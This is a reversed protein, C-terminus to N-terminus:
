LLTCSPNDKSSTMGEPGISLATERVVEPIEYDEESSDEEQQSPKSTKEDTQNEEVPDSNKTTDESVESAIDERKPKEPLEYKEASRSSTVSQNAYPDENSVLTTGSKPPLPPPESSDEPIKSATEEQAADPTLKSATSISKSKTGNETEKEDTMMNIQSNEIIGSREEKIPDRTHVTIKLIEINEENLPSDKSTEQVPETVEQKVTIPSSPSSGSPTGPQSTNPTKPPSVHPTEPPSAKPTEPPSEPPSTPPPPPPCDPPLDSEDIFPVSRHGRLLLATQRLTTPSLPPAPPIGDKGPLEPIEYQSVPETKKVVKEVNMENADMYPIDDLASPTQQVPSKNRAHDELSLLSDEGEDDLKPPPPPPPITPHQIQLKQLSAKIANGVINKAKIKEKEKKSEETKNDKASDTTLSTMDAKTGLQEETLPSKPPPINPPHKPIPSSPPRPPPPSSPPRPPPPSSPPRPPPVKPPQPSTSKLPQPTATRSSPDTSPPRPAKRKAKILISEDQLELLSGMPCLGPTNNLPTSTASRSVMKPKETVEEEIDEYFPNKGVYGSVTYDDKEFPNGNNVGKHQKGKRKNEYDKELEKVQSKVSDIDEYFPNLSRKKDEESKDVKGQEYENPRNEYPKWDPPMFDPPMPARRKKRRAGTSGGRLSGPMSASTWEMHPYTLSLGSDDEGGSSVKKKPPLPPPTDVPVSSARLAQVQQRIVDIEEYIHEEPNDKTEETGKSTDPVPTAIPTVSTNQVSEKASPPILSLTSSQISQLDPLSSMDLSTTSQELLSPMNALESKVPANANKNETSTDGKSSKEEVKEHSVMNDKNAVNKTESKNVFDEKLTIEEDSSSPQKTKKSKAQKVSVQLTETEEDTVYSAQSNPRHNLSTSSQASMYSYSGTSSPPRQLDQAIQSGESPLTSAMSSPFFLDSINTPYQHTGTLYLRLEEALVLMDLTLRALVSVETKPRRPYRLVGDERELYGLAKLIEVAGKVPAWSQNPDVKISRWGLQRSAEPQLLTEGYQALHILAVRVLAAGITSNAVCLRPAHLMSLKLDLSLPHHVLLHFTAWDQRDLGRGRCLSVVLRARWLSVEARWANRREDERDATACTLDPIEGPQQLVWQYSETDEAVPSGATWDTGEGGEDATTADTTPLLIDTSDTDIHLPDDSPRISFFTSSSLRSDRGSSADLEAETVELKGAFPLKTDKGSTETALIHHQSNEESSMVSSVTTDGPSTNPVSSTVASPEIITVTEQLVQSVPKNSTDATSKTATDMAEVTIPMEDTAQLSGSLNVESITTSVNQSVEEQKSDRFEQAIEEKKPASISVSDSSVTELPPLSSISTASPQKDQLNDATNTIYTDTDEGITDHFQPIQIDDKTTVANDNSHLIIPSPSRPPTNVPTSEVSVKSKFVDVSQEFKRFAYSIESNLRSSDDCTIESTISSRDSLSDTDKQDLYSVDSIGALKNKRKRRPPRQYPVLDTSTTIISSKDGVESIDDSPAMIARLKRDTSGRGKRPPPTPGRISFSLADEAKYGRVSISDSPTISHTTAAPSPSRAFVPSHSNQSTVSVRSELRQSDITAPLSEQRSTTRESDDSGAWPTMPPPPIGGPWMCAGGYYYPHPYPYPMCPMYPYWPYPGQQGHLSKMLEMQRKIKNKRPPPRRENLVTSGAPVLSKSDSEPTFMIAPGEPPRRQVKVRQIEIRGDDDNYIRRMTDVTYEDSPMPVTSSHPSLKGGAGTPSWGPPPGPYGWPPAPWPGSVGPPLQGPMWPPQPGGQYNPPPYFHPPYPQTPFSEVSDRGGSPSARAETSM